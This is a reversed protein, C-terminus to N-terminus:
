DGVLVSAMSLSGGVIEDNFLTLQYLEEPFGWFDHITKPQEEGTVYVGNTYWHVSICLVAKPKQFSLGVESINNIFGNNQIANMPSGHGIFLMQALNM